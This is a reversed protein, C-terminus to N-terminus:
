STHSLSRDQSSDTSRSEETSQMSGYVWCDETESRPFDVDETYRKQLHDVHRRVILSDSLKVMFSRPGSARLLHGPFWSKGQGFNKAFM